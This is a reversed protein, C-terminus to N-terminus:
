NGKKYKKKGWEKFKSIILQSDINLKFVLIVPLKKKYKIPKNKTNAKYYIIRNKYYLIIEEKLLKNIEIKDNYYIIYDYSLNFHSLSSNFKGVLTIEANIDFLEKFDKIIINEIKKSKIKNIPKKIPIVSNSKFIPTFEINAFDLIEEISKINIYNIENYIKGDNDNNNFYINNNTIDYLIFLYKNNKCFQYMNKYNNYAEIDNLARKTTIIGFSIKTININLKKKLKEIFYCLDFIIIYKNLKNLSAVNKNISMQFVLLVYKDGQRILLAFDYLESYDNKQFFLINDNLLINPFDSICYISNINVQKYTKFYNKMLFSFIIQKVLFVGEEQKAIKKIYNLATNNQFMAENLLFNNEFINKLIKNRFTVRKIKLEEVELFLYDIYAELDNLLFTQNLKEINNSNICVMLRIIKCYNDVYNDNSLKKFKEYMKKEYEYNYTLKNKCYDLYEKINETPKIKEYNNLNIFKFDKREVIYKQFISFTDRKLSIINYFYINNNVKNRFNSIYKETENYAEENYINDFIFYIENEDNMFYDIIAKLFYNLIDDPYGQIIDKIFSIMKEYEESFFLM